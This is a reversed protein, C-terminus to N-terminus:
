DEDWLKRKSGALLQGTAVAVLRNYADSDVASSELAQTGQVLRAVYKAKEVARAKLVEEVPLVVLNEYDIGLVRGVASVNGLVSREPHRLVRRVTAIPVRSLRSIAEDSIGLKFRREQLLTSTM